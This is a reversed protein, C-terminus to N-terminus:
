NKWHQCSLRLQHSTFLLRDVVIVVVFRYSRGAVLVDQMLALLGSAAVLPLMM